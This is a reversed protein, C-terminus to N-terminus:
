STSDNKIISTLLFPHGRRLDPPRRTAPRVKSDTLDYVDVWIGCGADSIMLLEEASFVVLAGMDAAEVMLILDSLLDQDEMRTRSLGLLVDRFVVLHEGVDDSEIMSEKM